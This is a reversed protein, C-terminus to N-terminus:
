MGYEELLDKSLTQAKRPLDTFSPVSIVNSKDKDDGEFYSPNVDGGVAMVHTKTETRHLPRVAAAFSLAGLEDTQRGASILVVFKPHDTGFNRLVNTAAELARDIRRGGRLYPLNDIERELGSKSEQNQFDLIMRANDSYVMLGVRSGSDGPYLNLQSIISKLFDKQNRFNTPTVDDSSDLVFLVYM